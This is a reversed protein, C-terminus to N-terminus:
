VPEAWNSERFPMPSNPGGAGYKILITAPRRRGAKTIAPKKKWKGTADRFVTVPFIAIKAAALSLAVDLNAAQRPAIDFEDAECIIEFLNAM